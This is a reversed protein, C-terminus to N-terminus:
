KKALGSGALLTQVRTQFRAKAVAGRFYKRAVPGIFPRAPIQIILFGRKFGGGGGGKGKQGKKIFRGQADRGSRQKKAILAMVYARMKPTVPIVIPKSGFEHVEAINVLKKGDKTRATRLVGIFAEAGDPRNRKHVSISNRLSGTRILAKKGGFGQARRFMLTNPSLPKFKKGGPAQTRFGEVVKKRFFQAEQLVARDMAGRIRAKGRGLILAAKGWEGERKIM